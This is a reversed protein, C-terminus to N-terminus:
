PALPGLGFGSATCSAWSISAWSGVGITSRVKGVQLAVVMIGAKNCLAHVTGSKSLTQKALDDVQDPKSVDTQVAHVDAGAARLAGSTEKLAPTEINV